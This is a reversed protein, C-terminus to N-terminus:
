FHMFDSIKKLAMNSSGSGSETATRATYFKIEFRAYNAKKM